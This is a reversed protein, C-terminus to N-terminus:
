RHDFSFATEKLAIAKEDTNFFSGATDRAFFWIAFSMGSLRSPLSVSILRDEHHHGYESM